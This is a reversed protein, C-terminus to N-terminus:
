HCCTFNQKLAVHKNRRGLKYGRSVSKIFSVPTQCQGVHGIFVVNIHEKKPADPQVPPVKPVLVEEEEEMLEPATEEVVASERPGPDGGGPEEENPETEKQDWPEETTM